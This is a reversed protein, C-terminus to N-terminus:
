KDDDDAGYADPPHRQENEEADHLINEPIHRRRGVSRTRSKAGRLAYTRLVEKFVTQRLTDNSPDDHIIGRLVRDIDHDSPRGRVGQRRRADDLKAVADIVLRKMRADDSQEHDTRSTEFINKM